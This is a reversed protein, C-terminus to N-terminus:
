EMVISDRELTLFGVAFQAVAAYYNAIPSQMIADCCDAYWPAIQREFFTRQAAVPQPLLMTDGAVLLRMTECLASLHDEVMTVGARRALGMTALTARLEALPRDMMFGAVWHSGHLNVPSKGVGIFLDDYEQRVVDPDASASAARLADWGAGLDPGADDDPRADVILPPAAAIAALLPADPPAALLRALLAYFDARTADEPAVGTVPAIVADSM